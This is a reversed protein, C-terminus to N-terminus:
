RRKSPNAPIKLAHALVIWTARMLRSVDLFLVIMSPFIFRSQLIEAGIDRNAEFAGIEAHSLKKSKSPM